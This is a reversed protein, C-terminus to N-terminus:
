TGNFVSIKEVNASGFWPPSAYVLKSKSSMFESIVSKLECLICMKQNISVM